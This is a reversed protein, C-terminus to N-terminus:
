AGNLWERRLKDIAVEKRKAEVEIWPADHFIDPMEAVLDHHRRDGFNHNGNSIHVIQWQPNPWTARAKRFIKELSPHNYSTLKEHCVHHHADFVMPVGAADCITLIEEAGYIHEDNELTLRLRVADPLNRIVSVLFDGRGGKGGHINMTAWPTRPQELRDMIEGHMCLIKRSNAVVDASESSLVVYQEPHVVLRIDLSTARQGTNSIEGHFEPLVEQGIEMDAFPFLKSTMRYLHIKQRECFDLARNLRQINEAYLVRLADIQESPALSLLRKRTMSRFRVEDSDTICVLGLQPRNEFRDFM